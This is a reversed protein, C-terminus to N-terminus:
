GAPYAIKHLTHAEPQNLTAKAGDPWAITIRDISTIDGLGFHAIPETCCHLGGGEIVRVQKRKGAYLHVTAGRAPAGFRTLPQVRVWNPGANPVKHMTLRDRHSHSQILELM